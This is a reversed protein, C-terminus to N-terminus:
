QFSSPRLHFLDGDGSFPVHLCFRTASVTPQHDGYMFGGNPLDRTNVVIPESDINADAEHLEIPQITLDAVVREIIQEVSGSLIADASLAEVAGKLKVELHGFASHLRGGLNFLPDYRSPHM